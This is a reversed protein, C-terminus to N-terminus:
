ARHKRSQKSQKRHKRSQKRHKRSKKSRRGGGQAMSLEENIEALRGELEKKEQM